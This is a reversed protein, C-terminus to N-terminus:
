TKAPFSEAVILGIACMTLAVLMSSWLNASHPPRTVLPAHLTAIFILFMLALLLGALRALKGAGFSIAFALFAAGTFYALFVRAPMWTPILSAILGHYIFHQVGFIALSVAVLLRGFNSTAEIPEPPASSNRSFTAGLVFAAGAIALTEFARTRLNGDPLHSYIRVVHYILFDLLFAAGVVRTSLAARVGSVISLASLLLAAGVLVASLPRGVTYPPINALDAPRHLFLFYQVAFAGLSFAFLFRGLRPLSKLM